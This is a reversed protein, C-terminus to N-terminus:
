PQAHPDSSITRAKNQLRTSVPLIFMMMKCCRWKRKEGIKEPRVIAEECKLVCIALEGHCRLVMM